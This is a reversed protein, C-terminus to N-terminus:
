AGGNGVNAVAFKFINGTLRLKVYMQLNKSHWIGSQNDEGGTIDNAFDWVTVEPKSIRPITEKNKEEFKVYEPYYKQAIRTSNVFTELLKQNMKVQAMKRYYAVMNEAQEILHTVQGRFAKVLKEHDGVHRLSLSALNEGHGVM